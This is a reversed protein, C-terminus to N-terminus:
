SLSVKRVNQKKAYLIIESYMKEAETKDEAANAAM